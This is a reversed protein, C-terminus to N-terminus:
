EDYKDVNKKSRQYEFAVPVLTMDKNACFYISPGNSHQNIHGTVYGNKKCQADLQQKLDRSCKCCGVLGVLVVFTVLITIKNM